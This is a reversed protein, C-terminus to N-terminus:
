TACTNCAILLRIPPGDYSMYIGENSWFGPTSNWVIEFPFSHPLLYRIHVSLVLSSILCYVFRSFSALEQFAAPMPYKLAPFYITQFTNPDIDAVQFEM